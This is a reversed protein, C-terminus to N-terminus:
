ETMQKKDALALQLAGCITKLGRGGIALDGAHLIGLLEFFLKQGQQPRAVSYKEFTRAIGAHDFGHAIEGACDSLATKPYIERGYPFVNRTEAPVAAACM